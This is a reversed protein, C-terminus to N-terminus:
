KWSAPEVYEVLPADDSSIMIGHSVGNNDIWLVNGGAFSTDRENTSTNAGTVIVSTGASLTIRNGRNPYWEQAEVPATVTATYPYLRDSDIIPRNNENLVFLAYVWGNAGESSVPVYLGSLKGTVTLTDNRELTKVVESKGSPQAYLNYTAPRVIVTKGTYDEANYKAREEPRAIFAAEAADRAHRAARSIASTVTIGTVLGVAALMVVMKVFAPIIDKERAAEKAYPRTKIIYYGISIALALSGIGTKIEPSGKVFGIVVAAIYGFWAFIMSKKLIESFVSAGMQKVVKSHWLFFWVPPLIFAAANLATQVNVPTFKHLQGIVVMSMLLVYGALSMFLSQLVRGVIGLHSLAGFLFGVVKAAIIPGIIAAMIFLNAGADTIGGGSGTSRGCKPCTPIDSNYREHCQPCDIM